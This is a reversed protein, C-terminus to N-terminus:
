YSPIIMFEIDRGESASIASDELSEVNPFILYYQVNANAYERNKEKFNICNNHFEKVLKDTIKFKSNSSYNKCQIFIFEDSIPYFAILDIGKDLVGLREGREDVIWGRHAFYDAVIKEYEAGLEKRREKTLPLKSDDNSDDNTRYKRNEFYNKLLFLFIIIVVIAVFFKKDSSFHNGVIILFVFFFVMGQFSFFWKM